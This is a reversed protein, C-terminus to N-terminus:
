GNHLCRENLYTKAAIWSGTALVAETYANLEAMFRDEQPFYHVFASLGSFDLIVLRQGLARHAQLAAIITASQTPFIEKILALGIVERGAIYFDVDESKCTLLVLDSNGIYRRAGSVQSLADKLQSESTRRKRDISRALAQATNPSDKAQIILVTDSTGCVVDAFEKDSGRKFPNLIVQESSLFRRLLAAIDREQHFGPRTADRELATMVFGDSGVYDNPGDRVDLIVQDSPWLEEQLRIRIARADDEPTRLGFWDGLLNLIATSNAVSFPALRVNDNTMFYSGPDEVTCRHRMREWGLEDLFYVDIEDAMLLAVTEVSANEDGFLATRIVLPEDADDFFATVISIAESDKAPIPVVYVSFGSQQQVALLAEKSAKIALSLKGDPRIPILGGPFILLDRAIEPYSLALV